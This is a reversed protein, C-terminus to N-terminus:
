AVEAPLTLSEIAGRIMHSRSALDRAQREFLDASRRQGGRRTREALRSLLVVRDELTRVAAWLANEVAHAQEGELSDASYAHGVSCRYHLLSGHDHEFLVGGCDPCTFRTADGPASSVAELPHSADQPRRDPRLEDELPEESMTEASNDDKAVCTEALWGGIRSAALIADLAVHRAASRPMGDYLAEDPDQAAVTGGARKIALLGATGDDRAGSLIVGVAGPGYARAAARMTPDVAPRHGNERPTQALRVLGADVLLHRDPPAVYVHDPLVADGDRAACVMLSTSRALIQPLVSTGSSAVHLVVFIPCGLQAPLGGAVEILAEVGGASAGLVVIRDAGDLGRPTSFAV